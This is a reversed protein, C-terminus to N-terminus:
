PRAGARMGPDGGLTWEFRLSARRQTWDPGVSGNTQVHQYVGVDGVVRSDARLPLAGNLAVGYVRGTGVRFEYINQTVSADAGLMRGDPRSWRVGGRWDTNAAGSGIDIDYSALATIADSALWSVDGGARWGNTRLEFGAQTEAYKRYAGRVSFSLDGRGPHWDATARAEDYGVPAFAGWITWLDFYPQSHRVELSGGLKGLGATGVRLRADNWVGTAMDYKAGVQATLGARRTTGDFAVRESFVGSLDAVLVRQYTLAASGLPGSRLQARAGLIYGNDWPPLNEVAALIPSTYAEDLGGLRARGAWGELMLSRRRYTADAGDFDYTGLGSNVWQRGLRGRWAKRQLEAYADVVDFHDNARPFTYDSPGGFQSRARVNSHFSFGEIWGWGAVTLDQLIPMFSIRDGAATFQCYSTGAPCYAPVGSPATRWVDTGPVSSAPLTDTTFQRLEFVQVNTVGSVRIGQAGAVFPAALLLLAAIRRM